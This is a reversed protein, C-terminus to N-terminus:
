RIMSLFEWQPNGPDINMLTEKEKKMEAQRMRREERNKKLNEVEKVVNSRRRNNTAADNVGGITNRPVTGGVGNNEPYGDDDKEPVEIKPEIKPPNVVAQTVRAGRGRAAPIGSNMGTNLQNKANRVEPAKMEVKNNQHNINTKTGGNLNINATITQDLDPGGVGVGNSTLTFNKALIHPNLASLIELDIEKGKTENREFWEVTVSKADWNIGSVVASHVRGDTRKINVQMGLGISYMLPDM